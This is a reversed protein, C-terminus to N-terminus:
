PALTTSPTTSVTAGTAGTPVLGQTSTTVFSSTTTSPAVSPTRPRLAFILAGTAIVVGAGVAIAVRLQKKEYPNKPRANRKDNM